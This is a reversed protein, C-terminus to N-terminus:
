ERALPSVSNPLKRIGLKRALPNVPSMPQAEETSLGPFHGVGSLRPEEGPKEVSAQSDVEMRFGNEFELLPWPAATLAAAVKRAVHALLSESRTIM